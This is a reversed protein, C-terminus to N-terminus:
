IVFGRVNSFVPDQVKIVNPPFEIDKLLLSGGGALLVVDSLSMMKKDSVLVSNFLKSVFQKKFEVIKDAVVVEEAGNFKFKGRVFIEKAEQESFSMKYQNEMFSTFPKIISSVGHGPYAKIDKRVPKGDVYSLLNITNNGIDIATIRDPFESNNYNHVWDMICGAGQPIISTNTKITEGNCTIESLRDVFEKKHEWDSISLGTRINITSINHESFKKLIHYVLLPAFKKMFKYDGTSFSEESVAEKGVYYKEGEFEYINDNGFKTGIDSAYCIASPFKATKGQFTVKCDGYGIDIGINENM